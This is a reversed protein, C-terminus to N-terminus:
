VSNRREQTIANHACIKNFGAFSRRQTQNNQRHKKFSFLNLARDFISNSMQKSPSSTIQAKVAIKPENAANSSEFKDKRRRSRKRRTKNKRKTEDLSKEDNQPDRSARGQSKQTVTPTETKRIM